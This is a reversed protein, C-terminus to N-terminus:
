RAILFLIGEQYVSDNSLVHANFLTCVPLSSYIVKSNSVHNRGPVCFENNLVHANFLTCMPLLLNVVIAGLARFM